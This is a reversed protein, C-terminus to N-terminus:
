LIAAFMFKVHNYSTYHSKLVQYITHEKFIVGNPSPGPTMKMWRTKVPDEVLKSHILDCRKVDGCM